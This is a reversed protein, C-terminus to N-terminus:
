VTFRAPRSTPPVSFGREPALPPAAVFADTLGATRRRYIRRENARNVLIATPDRWLPEGYADRLDSRTLGIDALMRDDMGALIQADHRHKLARAIKVIRLALIGGFTNLAELIPAAPSLKVTHTM